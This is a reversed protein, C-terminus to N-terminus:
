EGDFYDVQDEARFVKNINMGWVGIKGSDPYVAVDVPSSTDFDLYLLRETASANTLKHAGGEDAPFFLLDGASVPREGGPTRLVGNGSLIYFVEENLTHYHYPYASKGPLLEYVSVACRKAQGVGVFARKIYGYGEHRRREVGEIDSPKAQRIDSM